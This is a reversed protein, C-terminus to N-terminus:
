TSSRRAFADFKDFLEQLKPDNTRKKENYFYIYPEECFDDDDHRGDDEDRRDDDHRGDDEDHRGDDDQRDTHDGHDTTTMAETSTAAGSQWAVTTPRGTGTICAVRGRYFEPWLDINCRSRIGVADELNLANIGIASRRRNDINTAASDGGASASAPTVTKANNTRAVTATTAPADAGFIAAAEPAGTPGCSPESHSANIGRPEDVTSAVYREMAISWVFPARFRCGVFARPGINNRFTARTEFGRLLAGFLCLRSKVLIRSLPCNCIHFLLVVVVSRSFDV